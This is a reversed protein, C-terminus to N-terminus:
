MWFRVWALYAACGALLGLMRPWLAGPRGAYLSALWWGTFVVDAGLAWMPLSEPSGLYTGAAVAGANAAGAILFRGCYTWSRGTALAQTLPPMRLLHLYTSLGMVALAWAAYGLTAADWGARPFLLMLLHKALFPACALPLALAVAMGDFARRLSQGPDGVRAAFRPLLVLFISSAFLSAAVIVRYAAGYAGMMANEGRLERYVYYGLPLFLFDSFGTIAIPLARAWLWAMRRSTPGPWPLRTGKGGESARALLFGFSVAAGASFACAAAPLSPSRRVWFWALLFTAAGGLLRHAILDSWRQRAVSWWELQAANFMVAPALALGTVAMSRTRFGNEFALYLIVAALSTWWRTGMALAFARDSFRARVALTVSPGPLAFNALNSFITFDLLCVAYQGFRELGLCATFVSLAAFNLVQGTALSAFVWATPRAPLIEAVAAARLGAAGVGPIREAM